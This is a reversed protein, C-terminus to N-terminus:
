IKNNSLYEMAKILESRLKGYDISIGNLCDYDVFDILNDGLWECAKELQQTCKNEAYANVLNFFSEKDENEVTGWSINRCEVCEEYFDDDSMNEVWKKFSDWKEKDMEIM